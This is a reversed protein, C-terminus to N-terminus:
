KESESWNKLDSFNRIIPIDNIIEGFDEHIGAVDYYCVKKNMEKAIWATSSFPFCIIKDFRKIMDKIDDVGLEPGRVESHPYEVLDLLKRGWLM